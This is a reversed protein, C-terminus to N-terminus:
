AVLPLTLTLRTVPQQIAVEGAAHDAALVLPTRAARWSELVAMERSGRDKLRLLVTAVFGNGPTAPDVPRYAVLVLADERTVGVLHVTPGDVVPPTAGLTRSVPLDALTAIEEFRAGPVLSRLVRMQLRWVWVVVFPLLALGGIAILVGFM